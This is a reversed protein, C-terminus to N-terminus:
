QPTPAAGGLCGIPWSARVPPEDVVWRQEPLEGQPDGLRRGGLDRTRMHM